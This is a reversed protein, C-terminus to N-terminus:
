RADAHVQVGADVLSVFDAMLQRVAELAGCMPCWEVCVACGSTLDLGVGAVQRRGGAAVHM